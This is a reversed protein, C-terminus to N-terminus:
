QVLRKHVGQIQILFITEQNEVKLFTTKCKMQKQCKLYIPSPNLMQRLTKQIWAQKMCKTEPEQLNM